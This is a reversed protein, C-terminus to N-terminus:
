ALTELARALDAILVDAGELGVSLRVLGPPLGAKALAEGNGERSPSIVLSEVGGWSVGIRFYRLADICRGIAAHDARELTFSFLGGYGRLQGAAFTAAEPLLAPHYVQGVEARQALWRAVALGDAQHQRLRAPLTRLGRLLLYVDHPSPAAGNLMFAGYFIKEILEAKGAVVGGIVDSHGGIYKSCSHISLDFGMELPKQFLPTAWTNDIVALIGRERAAAALARLDLQRFLMTGPSEVYLLRTAPRLAALVAATGDASGGCDPLHDHAVGFREMHQALQLAPGYIQNAFLVHDGSRLLGYLVASIAGQGSAFCKAAAARELAAIKRELVQVTPNQGRSYVFNEHEAALGAILEAFSPRAFLSAQAIPPLLAGHRAGLDEDHGLCILEDAADM